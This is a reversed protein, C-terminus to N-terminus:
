GELDRVAQKRRFAPPRALGFRLGLGDALGGRLGVGADGDSAEGPRQSQLSSRASLYSARASAARSGPAAETEYLPHIQQNSGSGKKNKTRVRWLLYALGGVM